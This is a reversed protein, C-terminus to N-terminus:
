CPRTSSCSPTRSPAPSAAIDTIDQGDFTMRGGAEVDYLRSILNLVTTKGAGNPGIISFVEGREVEFSVDRVAKVGGFSVNVHAASFLVGKM